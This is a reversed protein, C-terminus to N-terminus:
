QFDAVWGQPLESCLTLLGNGPISWEQIVPCQVNHADGRFVWARGSSDDAYVYRDPDDSYRRVGFELWGRSKTNIVDGSRGESDIIRVAAEVDEARGGQQRPASYQPWTLAALVAVLLALRLASVQALALSAGIALLVALPLASRVIWFNVFLASAIWLAGLSACAAALWRAGESTVFALILAAVVVVSTVATVDGGAPLAGPWVLSDVIGALSPAPIWDHQSGAKFAGYLQLVLGPITATLSFAWLRWRVRYDHRSMLILGHGVLVVLAFPALGALVFLSVSYLWWWRRNAGTLMEVLSWTALAAIALALAYVRAEQSYRAVGPMLALLLGAAMGARAGALRRGAMATAAVALLTAIVSLSRLWVDSDFTGGLTWVWVTVYYPIIGADWPYVFPGFQATEATVREDYWLGPTDLGWIGLVLAVLLPSILYWPFPSLLRRKAM